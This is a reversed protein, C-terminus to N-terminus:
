HRNRLASSPLKKRYKRGESEYITYLTVTSLRDGVPAARRAAGDITHM